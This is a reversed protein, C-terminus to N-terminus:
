IDDDYLKNKKDEQDIAKGLKGTKNQRGSEEDHMARDDINEEGDELL